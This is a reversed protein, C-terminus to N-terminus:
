QPLGARRRTQRRIDSATAGFRARFARAFTVQSSFGSRLGIERLSLATETAMRRAEDLRLDLFFRGPSQGLREAFLMELRRQSLGVDRAIAAIPPPDEIRAEMLAIARGLAPTDRAIRAAPVARQPDTAGHVPEYLLAGAVRLALESGHRARILELM